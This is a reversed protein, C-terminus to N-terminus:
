VFQRMRMQQLLVLYQSRIGPTHLTFWRRSITTRDLPGVSLGPFVRGLWNMGLTPHLSVPPFHLMSCGQEFEHVYGALRVASKNAEEANVVSSIELNMVIGPLNNGEVGSPAVRLCGVRAKCEMRQSLKISSRWKADFLSSCKVLTHVDWDYLRAELSYITSDSETLATRLSHLGSHIETSTALMWCSLGMLLVAIARSSTMLALLLARQCTGSETDDERAMDLSSFNTPLKGESILGHKFFDRSKSIVVYVHTDPKMEKKEMEDLFNLSTDPKCNMGFCFCMMLSGTECLGDIITIHTIVKPTQGEGVMKSLLHIAQETDGSKCWGDMLQNYAIVSSVFGKDLMENFLDQSRVDKKGKDVKKIKFFGDITASNTFFVMLMTCHKIWPEHGYVGMEKILDLAGVVDEGNDDMSKVQGVALDLMNHKCLGDISINFSTTDPHPTGEADGMMAKLVNYARDVQGKSVLDILVSNCVLIVSEQDQDWDRRREKM